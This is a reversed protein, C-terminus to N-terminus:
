FWRHASAAAGILIEGDGTLGSSEMGSARNERGFFKYFVDAPTVQEIL